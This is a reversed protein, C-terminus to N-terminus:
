EGVLVPEGTATPLSVGLFNALTPAIQRIDMRGLNKGPKVGPGLVFFAANMEPHTNRYGHAGTTNAQQRVTEGALAGGMALGGKADVLFSAEELAGERVAAEGRLVSAVGGAPDKELAALIADVTDRSAVDNKDKLVVSASGGSNWSYAKWSQLKGEQDVAILGAKAFAANLNITADVRHFGHDSVIAIISGPYVARQAEILRSIMADTEELARKAGDNAPLPGRKHQASDLGTLHVTLLQPKAEQIMALAISTLKEDFSWEESNDAADFLKDAGAVKELFGRPTSVAYLLHSDSATKKTRWYEPMNYDIAPHAVSVPWLVSATTLGGSKAADWLTPVRIQSGYWNWAGKEVGEPDFVTNTRIGHEAPATGTIISTHNPYTVTPTVNVVETSYAGKRVFERLTPVQLGLRHAEIVYDPHLGDVSILLVARENERAAALPSALLLSALVFNLKSATNM